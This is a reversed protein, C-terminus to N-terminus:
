LTLPILASFGPFSKTKNPAFYVYVLYTDDERPILVTTSSAKYLIQKGKADVGMDYITTATVAGSAAFKLTLSTMAMDDNAPFVFDTPLPLGTKKIISDAALTKGFAKWDTKWLNQYAVIGDGVIGFKDLKITLEQIEKGSKATLTATYVEDKKSDFSTASLTWTKGDTLIKGSIKGAATTTITVLGIPNKDSDVFGGSFTGVAWSRMAEATISMTYVRSNKGATTVTFKALSPIIAGTKKDVKSAATPTGQISYLKTTKDQVLKLGTPLGAVKVTATSLSTAEIPWNVFVGVPLTIAAFEDTASDVTPKMDDIEFSIARLDDEKSMVLFTTTVKTTQKNATKSFTVTFSGSKTPKGTIFGTKANFKLGTPLGAVKWGIAFSFDLPEIEKGLVFGAYGEVVEEGYDKELGPLEESYGVIKLTGPVFTISYNPNRESTLDGAEIPYSKGAEREYDCVLSGVLADGEVLAGSTLKYSFKTPAEEGGNLKWTVDNAKITIARPLITVFSSGIFDNYGKASFKYFIQLESVKNITPPKIGWGIAANDSYEITADSAVAKVAKEIAETDLTHEAGDYVNTVNFLGDEFDFDKLTPLPPPNPDDEEGGGPGDGDAVWKINNLYFHNKVDSVKVYGNGNSADDSVDVRWTIIADETLNTSSHTAETPFYGDKSLTTWVGNIGIDLTLYKIMTESCFFDFSLTGKGFTAATLSTQGSLLGEEDGTCWIGEQGEPAKEWKGISGTGTVNSIDIGVANADKALQSLVVEKKTAAFKLTENKVVPGFSYAAEESTYSSEYGMKPTGWVKVTANPSVTIVNNTAVPNSHWESFGEAEVTVSYTVEAPPDVPDVPPDEESGSKTWVIEDLYFRNNESEAFSPSTQEGIYHVEFRLDKSLGKYAFEFKTWSDASVSATLNTQNSSGDTLWFELTTAVSDSTKAKFSLKGDGRLPLALQQGEVSDGVAIASILSRISTPSEPVVEWKDSVVECRKCHAAISLENTFPTWIAYFTYTGGVEFDTFKDGVKYTAETGDSDLTWGALRYTPNALAATDLTFDPLAYPETCPASVDPPNGFATDSNKEFKVTFTNVKWQAVLKHNKTVTIEDGENVRANTESNLWGDFVFNERSTLEPLEPYTGGVHLVLPELSENGGNADLTVTIEEGLLIAYLTHDKPTKVLSEATIEGVSAKPDLSWGLFEYGEKSPANQPLPYPKDFTAKVPTPSFQAGRTDFSVTYVNNTWDATLTLGECDETFSNTYYGGQLYVVEDPDLWRRCTYGPRTFTSKPLTIREGYTMKITPMTQADNLGSVFEITNTNAVFSCTAILGVFDYQTEGIPVCPFRLKATTFTRESPVDGVKQSRVVKWGGFHSGPNPKAEIDFYYDNNEKTMGTPISITGLKQSAKDCLVNIANYKSYLVTLYDTDSCTSLNLAFLPSSFSLAACLLFTRRLHKILAKIPM